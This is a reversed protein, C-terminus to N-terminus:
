MSTDLTLDIKKNWKKESGDRFAGSLVINWSLRSNSKSASLPRLHFFLVVEVRKQLFVCKWTKKRLTSKRIGCLM